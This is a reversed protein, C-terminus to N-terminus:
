RAGVEKTRKAFEEGAIRMAAHVAPFGAYPTMNLLVEVVEDFSAGVNLAANVHVRLPTESAKTGRAALAACASLERTKLDLMSRSFVDGYCHDVLMRGIDPALDDFGRIVEEGSSGSTASLTALGRQRRVDESEPLTPAVREIPQADAPAEFVEMAVGFANLASPFGGYVSLQILVEVIEERSVGCALASQMQWALWGPRNAQTGLMSIIVLHKEKASLFGRSLVDGFVVEVTWQSLESAQASEATGSTTVLAEITRLGKRFRQEGAAEQVPAPVFTIARDAFLKRVIPVADIAAPFGLIAAAVFLLEVIDRPGGGVNLLGELHFRLQPQASGHAMLSAATCLQRTRLDLGPRSLVDGYPFAVTFTAMDKSVRALRNIPGDFDRGGIRGLAELGRQYRSDQVVM